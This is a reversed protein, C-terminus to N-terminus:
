MRSLSQLYLSGIFRLIIAESRVQKDRLLDHSFDIPLHTVIIEIDDDISTGLEALPGDAILKGRDM